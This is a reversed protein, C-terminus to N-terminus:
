LFQSYLFAGHLSAAGSKSAPYMLPPQVAPQEVPNHQPPSVNSSLPPFPTLFPFPDRNECLTDLGPGPHFRPVGLGM